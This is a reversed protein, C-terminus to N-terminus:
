ITNLYCVMQFGIEKRGKLYQVIQTNLDRSYELDGNSVSLAQIM